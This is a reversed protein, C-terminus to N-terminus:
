ALSQLKANSLMRLQLSLVTQFHKGCLEVFTSAFKVHYLLSILLLRLYTLCPKDQQFTQMLPTPFIDWRILDSKKYKTEYRIKFNRKM